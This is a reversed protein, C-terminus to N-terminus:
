YHIDSCESETSPAAPEHFLSIQSTRRLLKQNTSSHWTDRRKSYMGYHTRYQTLDSTRVPPDIYMFMQQFRGLSCLMM